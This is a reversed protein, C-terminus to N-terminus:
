FLLMCDIVADHITAMPDMSWMVQLTVNNIIVTSTIVTTVEFDPDHSRAM